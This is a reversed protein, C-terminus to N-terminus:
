TGGKKANAIAKEIMATDIPEDLVDELANVCADPISEIVGLAYECAIILDNVNDTIKKRSSYYYDADDYNGLEAQELLYDGTKSM